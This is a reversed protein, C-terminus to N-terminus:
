SIIWYAKLAVAQYGQSWLTFDGGKKAADLITSDLFQVRLNSSRAELELSCMCKTRAVSAHLRQTPRRRTQEIQEVIETLWTLEKVSPQSEIAPFLINEEWRM